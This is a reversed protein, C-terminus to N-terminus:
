CGRACLSRCVRLLLSHLPEEMKLIMELRYVRSLSFSIPSVPLPFPRFFCWSGVKNGWLAQGSKPWCCISTISIIFWDERFRRAMSGASIIPLILLATTRFGLEYGEFLPPQPNHCDIIPLPSFPRFGKGIRNAGRGGSTERQECGEEWRARSVIGLTFQTPNRNHNGAKMVAQRPASMM